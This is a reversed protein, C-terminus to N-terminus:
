YKAIASLYLEAKDYDIQSITEPERNIYYQLVKPNLIWIRSDAYGKVYWGPYVLVPNVRFQKGTKENLYSRLSRANNVAQDIPARDPNKGPVFVAEGNSHIEQQGKSPKSITKTEVVFIGHRSLIVHDINYDADNIVVDHFVRIGEKKLNDLTEGVIKEGLSGQEYNKADKRLKTDAYYFYIGSALVLITALIPQPPVGFYAHLLEYVAVTLVVLFIFLNRLRKLRITEIEEDLYQGPYRLPKDTIPSRRDNSGKM